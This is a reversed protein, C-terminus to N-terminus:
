EKKLTVDNRDKRIIDGLFQSLTFERKIMQFILSFVKLSGCISKSLFVNSSFIQNEIALKESILM